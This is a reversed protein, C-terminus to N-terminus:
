IQLNFDKLFSNIQINTMYTDPYISDFLLKGKYSTLYRPIKIYYDNFKRTNVITNKGMTKEGLLTTNFNNKLWISFIEASSATFKDILLFLNEFYIKKNAECNISYNERDNFINCLSSKNSSLLSAINKLDKLSGGMNGRLDIVLNRACITETNFLSMNNLKIYYDKRSNSKIRYSEIKKWSPRYLNKYYISNNKLYKLKYFNQNKALELVPNSNNISIVKRYSGDIFVYLNDAIFYKINLLNLINFVPPSTSIDLWKINQGLVFNEVKKSNNILKYCCNKRIYNIIYNENRM